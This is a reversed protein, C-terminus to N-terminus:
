GLFTRRAARAMVVKRPSNQLGPTRARLRAFGAKAAATGADSDQRNLKAVSCLEDRAEPRGVLAPDVREPGVVVLSGEFLDVAPHPVVQVTGCSEFRSPPEVREENICGVFEEHRRNWEVVSLERV